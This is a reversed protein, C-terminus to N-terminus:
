RLRAFTGAIGGTADEAALVSEPMLGQGELVLRTLMSKGTVPLVTEPGTLIAVGRSAM